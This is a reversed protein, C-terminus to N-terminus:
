EPKSFVEDLWDFIVRNASTRNDLQCHDDSGDKDMSFVYIDKKVASVAEYFEYAQDILEQGENGGALALTPCTIKRMKDRLCWKDPDENLVANIMERASYQGAFGSNWMALYMMSKTLPSKKMKQETLWALVGIPLKIKELMEKQARSVDILPSSPIVAKVRPEFIAVRSVVYGGFSHGALAIREDVGPLKGLVDFAAAFPKEMDYRKVCNPYLHVTGRHGPFEFTFFNYGRDIAAQASWYWVEEGSSDNGGISFMTPRKEGSNDPSWYYAPLNKGEFPVELIQVPPEFLPCAKHFCDRSHEWLEHFKPHTPVAAYEAARYYNSSRLFAGRASITQKNELSREADHQVREALSEWASIWTEINNEKIKPVVSLCDGIDAGGSNAYELTRKFFWDMESDNFTGLNNSSRAIKFKSKKM